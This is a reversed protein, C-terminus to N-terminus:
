RAEGCEPCPTTAALGSLDYGCRSCDGAGRNRRQRLPLVVGLAGLGWLWAANVGLEVGTSAGTKASLTWGHYTPHLAVPTRVWGKPPIAQYLIVTPLIGNSVDIQSFRLGAMAFVHSPGVMLANGCVVSPIIGGPPPVGKWRSWSSYSQMHSLGLRHVVARSWQTKIAVTYLNAYAAAALTM